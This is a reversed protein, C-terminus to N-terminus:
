FRKLLEEKAQEQNKTSRGSLRTRPPTLRIEEPRVVDLRQRTRAAVPSKVKAKNFEGKDVAKRMINKMVAGAVEHSDEQLGRRKGAKVWGELEAEAQARAKGAKKGARIRKEEQVYENLALRQL